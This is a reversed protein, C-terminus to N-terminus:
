FDAPLQLAVYMFSRETVYFKLLQVQSGSSTHPHLQGSPGAGWLRCCLAAFHGDHLRRQHIAAQNHGSPGPRTKDAMGLCFFLPYNYVICFLYKTDQCAIDLM